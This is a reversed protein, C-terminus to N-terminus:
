TKAPEHTTVTVAAELGMKRLKRNTWWQVVASKLKGFRTQTKPMAFRPAAYAVICFCLAAGPPIDTKGTAVFYDGFASHMLPREDMGIAKNAMPAWEEGGIMQGVSFLLEAAAIGAARSKADNAQQQANASLQSPTVAAPGGLTSKKGSDAASVYAGPKRGRKLAWTGRVTRVGQGDAGTIHISPDFSVGGADTTGQAAQVQAQEALAQAVAHEQVDPMSESLATAITTLDATSHATDDKPPDAVVAALDATQSKNGASM